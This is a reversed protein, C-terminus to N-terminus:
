KMTCVSRYTVSKSTGQWQYQLLQVGREHRDVLRDLASYVCTRGGIMWFIVTLYIACVGDYPAMDYFAKLNRTWYAQVM